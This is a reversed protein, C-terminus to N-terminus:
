NKYGSWVDSWFGLSIFGVALSVHISPHRITCVTFTNSNLTNWIFDRMKMDLDAGDVTTEMETLM